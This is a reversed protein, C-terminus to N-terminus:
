SEKVGQKEATEEPLIDVTITASIGKGLNVRVNHKGLDKLPEPLELYKRDFEFGVTASIAEAIERATVSGYLKGTEGAKKSFTLVMGEIKGQLAKAEELEKAERMARKKRLKEIQSLNGPTAEIAMKKPILYNRAYGEKVEVIDGEKGLNKVEQILIVRM